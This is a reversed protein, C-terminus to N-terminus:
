ISGRLYILEGFLWFISGRNIERMSKFRSSICFAKMERAFWRRMRCLEGGEKM